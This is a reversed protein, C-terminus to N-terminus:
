RCRSLDWILMGNGTAAAVLGRNNIVETLLGDATHLLQLVRGHDWAFLASDTGGPTIVEALIQGNDNLALPDLTGLDTTRGKSWFFGHQPGTGAPLYSGIVQGSENMGAASWANPVPMIWKSHDWIYVYYQGLQERVALVQGSDSFGVIRQVLGLDVIKGNTWLVAHPEGWPPVGQQISYGIAQGRDNIYVPRDYYSGPLTPLVSMVGHRWMVARANPGGPQLESNGVIVGRDNISDAFSNGGLTGLDTMKGHHWLVAHMPGANYDGSYGVIDGNQNVSATGGVGLDTLVGNHWAFGHVKHDAAFREGIVEGRDNIGTPWGEPVIFTGTCTSADPASAATAAGPSVGSATGAVIAAVLLARKM